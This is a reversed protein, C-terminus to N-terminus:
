SHRNFYRKTEPKAWYIILPVMGAATILFPFTTTCIVVLGLIWSGPKRSIGIAAGYLLAVAAMGVAMGPAEARKGAIIEARAQPNGAALTEILGLSPEVDGRAELIKLIAFSLYM